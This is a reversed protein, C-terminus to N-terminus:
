VLKGIIPTIVMEKYCNPCRMSEPPNDSHDIEIYNLCGREFPRLLGTPDDEFRCFISWGKIFEDYKLPKM